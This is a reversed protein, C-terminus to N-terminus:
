AFSCRTGDEDVVSSRVALRTAGPLRLPLEALLAAGLGAPVLERVLQGIRDALSALGDGTAETRIWAALTGRHRAIAEDFVKAPLVCFAPVDFGASRLRFLNWAKGGVEQASLGRPAASGPILLSRSASM